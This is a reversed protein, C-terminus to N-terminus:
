ATKTLLFSFAIHIVYAHISSHILTATEKPGFCINMKSHIQLIAGIPYAWQSM